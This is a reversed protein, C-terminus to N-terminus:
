AKPAYASFQLGYQPHKSVYIDVPAEALAKVIGSEPVGEFEEHTQAISKLLYEIQGGSFRKSFKTKKDMDYFTLTKYQIDCGDKQKFGSESEKDELKFSHSFEIKCLHKGQAPTFVKDFKQEKAFTAM